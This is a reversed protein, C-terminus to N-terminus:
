RVLKNLLDRVSLNPLNAKQAEVAKDVAKNFRTDSVIRMANGITQSGFMPQAPLYSNVTKRGFGVATPIQHAVLPAAAGAAAGAAGGIALQKIMSKIRSKRNGMEDYGPDEVLGKAGGIAAGIAAGAPLTNSMDAPRFNMVAENAKSGLDKAVDTAKSAVNKATSKVAEMSPLKALLEQIYTNAYKNM